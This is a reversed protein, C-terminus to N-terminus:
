TSAVRLLSITPRQGRAKPVTTHRSHFHKPRDHRPAHSCRPPMAAPPTYTCHRPLALRHTMCPGEPM